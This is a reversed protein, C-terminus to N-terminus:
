KKCHNMAKVFRGPIESCSGCYFVNDTPDNQIVDWCRVYEGHEIQTLVEINDAIISNNHNFAYSRYIAISTILVFISSIIYKMTTIEKSM